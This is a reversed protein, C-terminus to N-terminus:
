LATTLCNIADTIVVARVRAANADDNPRTHVDLEVRTRDLIGKVASMHVDPDYPFDALLKALVPLAARFGAPVADMARRTAAARTASCGGVSRATTPRTRTSPM